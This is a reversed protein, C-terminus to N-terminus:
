VYAYSNIHIPNCFRERPNPLSSIQEHLCLPKPKNRLNGARSMWVGLVGNWELRKQLWANAPMVYWISNILSHGRATSVAGCHVGSFPSHRSWRESEATTLQGPCGVASFTIAPPRSIWLGPENLCVPDRGEGSRKQLGVFAALTFHVEIAHRHCLPSVYPSSFVQIARM